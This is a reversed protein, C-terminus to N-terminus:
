TGTGSSPVSDGPVSWGEPCHWCKLQWGTGEVVLAAVFGRGPELEQLSWRSAEQPDCPTSLLVGSGEPDLTVEFRSLRLWFGGGKAKICAEKHTWCRFFAEARAHAPVASLAAAERQSFFREAIRECAVDPRVHELDIGVERGCTVAYLALGHSHSMNFRLVDGGSERALYPKGEEGRRFRLEAPAMGVYRGLIIRLLGRAAIFRARHMPFRLQGARAREDSSLSRLLEEVRSSALDLVCRWVHVEDPRLELTRPPPRWTSDTAKKGM